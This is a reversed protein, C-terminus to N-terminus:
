KKESKFYSNITRQSTRLTNTSNNIEYNSSNLLSEEMGHQHETGYKYENGTSGKLEKRQLM